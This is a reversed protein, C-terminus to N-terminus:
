AASPEDIELSDWNEFRRNTLLWDRAQLLSLPVGAAAAGATIWWFQATSIFSAIASNLLLMMGAASCGWWAASLATWSAIRRSASRREGAGTAATRREVGRRIEDALLANAITGPFLIAAAGFMYLAVQGAAAANTKHPARFAIIILAVVTMSLTASALGVCTARLVYHRPTERPRRRLPGSYPLRVFACRELWSVGAQLEARLVAAEGFRAIAALAASEDDSTRAREEDYLRTLHALLEERWQDKRANSARIPRVIREVHVRLTNM